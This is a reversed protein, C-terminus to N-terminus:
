PLETATSKNIQDSYRGIRHLVMAMPLIGMGRAGCM